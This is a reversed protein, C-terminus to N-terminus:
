RGAIPMASARAEAMPRAAAESSAGLARRWSRCLGSSVRDVRVTLKSVGTQDVQGGIGELATEITEILERTTWESTAAFLV